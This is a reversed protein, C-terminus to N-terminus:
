NIEETHTDGQRQLGSVNSGRFSPNDNGSVPSSIVSLDEPLVCPSQVVSVERWGLVKKGETKKKIIVNKHSHTCAQTDIGSSLMLSCNKGEM